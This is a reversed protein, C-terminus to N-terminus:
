IRKKKTQSNSDYESKRKRSDQDDDDDEEDSSDLDFFTDPILTKNKDLHMPSMVGTDEDYFLKYKKFLELQNYVIYKIQPYVSAIPDNFDPRDVELVGERGVKMLFLNEEEECYLEKCSRDIGGDKVIEKSLTFMTCVICQNKVKYVGEMKNTSSYCSTEDLDGFYLEHINTLKMSQNHQSLGTAFLICTFTDEVLQPLMVRGACMAEPFLVRYHCGEANVCEKNLLAELNKYLESTEGGCANKYPAIFCSRNPFLNFRPDRIQYCGELHDKLNVVRGPETVNNYNIEMVDEEIEPYDSVIQQNILETCIENMEKVIADNEEKTHECVDTVTREGKRGKLTYVKRREPDNEGTIYESFTIDAHAISIPDSIRSSNIAAEKILEDKDISELDDPLVPVYDPLPQRLM